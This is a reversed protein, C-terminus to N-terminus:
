LVVIDGAKANDLAVGIHQIDTYVVSQKAMIDAVDEEYMAVVMYVIGTETSTVSFLQLPDPLKSVYYAIGFSIASCAVAAVAFGKAFSRNLEEMTNWM